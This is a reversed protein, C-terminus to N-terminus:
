SRDTRKLSRIRTSSPVEDLLVVSVFRVRGGAELADVNRRWDTYGNAFQPMAQGPVGRM